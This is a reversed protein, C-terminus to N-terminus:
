LEFHFGGFVMLATADGKYFEVSRDDLCNRFNAFLNLKKLINYSIGANLVLKPDMNEVGRQGDKYSLNKSELQTQAGYFYANVNVNLKDNHQYNIYAGGFYAPARKNGIRSGMGSNINYVAPNNNNSSSPFSQPSNTYQSYDLLYSQQITVFPRFQWKGSYYSFSVTGGFRQLRVTLNNIDILGSFSIPAASDIKGSETILDSFDKTMSYFAEMDLEIKGDMKHRYGVSIMSSSLLRINKNGRLQFVYQQSPSTIPFSGTLDLNTFVDILLPARYATGGSVRLLNRENIRYTAALQYPVYLKDPYNFKDLRGSAILRLKSNMMLYELRLSASTTTSRADGNWLGERIATNVYRSDNYDAVRYSIGPRISLNKVKHINYEVAADMTNLDWHWIKQGLAPAETGGNDSVQLSLDYIDARLSVYRTDSLSTTLPTLGTGFEKQVQSHQGGVALEFHVKKKPDYTVFGNVAYKRMALHPDPYSQSVIDPNTLMANRIATVSDIPVYRNTVVDYYNSQTRNRNQFNASAWASVKDNFKYGLSANSIISNYSGYQDNVVAYLGKHEPRATIINIVGSVANPGYMAACPGIVVEIREVDNIDVPLTEWFTGGHLYNYVPRNDIMVLTTSNAFFVLLANPPVNSVGRVHVDYNGNTQEQVIMGPVLRLAEVISTCGAKKIQDKTVVSSSLPADFVSEEKKSASYIKIEMLKDIPLDLLQSLSDMDQAPLCHSILLACIFILLRRKM